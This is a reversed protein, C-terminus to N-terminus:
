ATAAKEAVLVAFEGRGIGILTKLASIKGAHRGAKPPTRGSREAIQSSLEIMFPLMDVLAAFAHVRVFGAEKAVRALTRPAYLILHRPTELGRWDPGFIAHGTSDLNPTILVLRGGDKLLRKAQGLVAAPEQLHEFVNNMVIADFSAPPYGANALDSVRATVGPIQNAANVAKEDFDIGEAKWGAAGAQRLFQGAGCGVELLRGPPLDELHFLGTKFQARRWPMLRALWKKLQAKRSGSDNDTTTPLEATAANAEPAHTYYTAYLKGIEGATPQPDLWGARCGADACRRISWTGPAGFLRDRLGSHM